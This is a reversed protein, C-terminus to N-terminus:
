PLHYEAPRGLVDHCIRGQGDQQRMSVTGVASARGIMLLESPSTANQCQLSRSDDWVLAERLVREDLATNGVQAAMHDTIARVAAVMDRRQEEFYEANM